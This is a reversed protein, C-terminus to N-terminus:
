IMAREPRFVPCVADGRAFVEVKAIARVAMQASLDFRSRLEQYCLQHIRSQSGVGAAFGQEAAFM